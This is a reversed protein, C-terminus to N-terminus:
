GYRILGLTGAIQAAILGALLGGAPLRLVVLGLAALKGLVVDRGKMTSLFLLSLTGERRERSICDATIVVSALAIVLGVATLLGLSSRGVAGVNM